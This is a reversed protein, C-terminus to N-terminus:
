ELLMLLNYVIMASVAIIIVGVVALLTKITMRSNQVKKEDDSLTPVIREEVSQGEIKTQDIFNIANVLNMDNENLLTSYKAFKVLDATRFLNRLEDFMAKDGSEQLSYMIEASTMEMANFGFREKIYRRLADTLQTYYYKQDDSSVLHENRLKDIEKLAKQHPPIRKVIHIRTVIPKNQKLRIVLYCMAVCCLLVLFSAWFLLSWEAWSFPNDQVDKPPFFKDTHLTDVDVTLVKLALPNSKYNKGNVKVNIGGLAYLKEDFSTLTYVKSVTTNGDVYVTDADSVDLVEVGPVIYQSHKFVPFTVHTGKQSTVSVSLHAQQGIRIAISDLKAEVSVAQAFSSLFTAFAIIFSLAIRLNLDGLKLLVSM